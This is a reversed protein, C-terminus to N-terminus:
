DETGAGGAGPADGTALGAVAPAPRRGGYLGVLGIVALTILIVVVAVLATPNSWVVLVLLGVALIGWQLAKRNRAVFDHVPGGTM